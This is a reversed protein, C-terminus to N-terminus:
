TGAGGARRRHRPGAGAGAPHVPNGAPDTVTFGVRLNRPAPDKALASFSAPPPRSRSLSRRAAFRGGRGSLRRYRAGHPYQVPFLGRGGLLRWLAGPQRPGRSPKLGVVGCCSAPVRISGAGDSAEALPVMGTAVAVATGGSSGGPTVTSDWPNLTPGYLVPETAICWGNEPANTKGLLSIGAAKIRTALHNDAPAVIDKLFRSANTAQVGAWGSALEKLLFPVGALPADRDVSAAAARGIDYRKDIVANLQPNLAEIARIAAEAVELATVDGRRVHGALAVADSQRYLDDIDAM